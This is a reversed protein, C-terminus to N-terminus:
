LGIKTEITKNQKNKAIAEMERAMAGQMKGNLKTGWVSV